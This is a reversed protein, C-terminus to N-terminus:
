KDVFLNISYSNLDSTDQLMLYFMLMTKNLIKRHIMVICKKQVRKECKIFLNWWAYIGFCLKNSIYIHQGTSREQHVPYPRQINDQRVLCFHIAQHFNLNLTLFSYLLFNKMNESSNDKEKLFSDDQTRASQRHDTAQFNSNSSGTWSLTM